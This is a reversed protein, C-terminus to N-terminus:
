CPKVNDLQPKKLAEKKMPQKLARKEHKKPQKIRMTWRKSQVNLHEKKMSKKTRKNEHDM